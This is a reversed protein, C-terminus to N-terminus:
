TNRHDVCLICQMYLGGNSVCFFVSRYVRNLCHENDNNSMSKKTNRRKRRKKKMTSVGDAIWPQSDAAVM